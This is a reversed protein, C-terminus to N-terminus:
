VKLTARSMLRGLGPPPLQVLGDLGLLCIRLAQTPWLRRTCLVCGRVCNRRHRHYTDLAALHLQPPTGVPTAVRVATGRILIFVPDHVTVV